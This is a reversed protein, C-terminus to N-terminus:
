YMVRPRRRKARVGPRSGRRIGRQVVGGLIGQVHPALKFTLTSDSHTGVDESRGGGRLFGSRKSPRIPGRGAAGILPEVAHELAPPAFEGATAVPREETGQRIGIRREDLEGLTSADFVRCSSM